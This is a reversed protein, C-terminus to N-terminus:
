CFRQTSSLFGLVFSTKFYKMWIILKLYLLCFLLCWTMKKRFWLGLCIIKEKERHIRRLELPFWGQINMPLVLASASVGINPWKIHLPSESFFIRISPFISPLLLLPCCLILHDSPMVSEISMVKLLSQSNTISLYAQCAATWPTAFPLVCSLLQVSSIRRLFFLCFIWILLGGYIRSFHTVEFPLHIILIVLSYLAVNCM